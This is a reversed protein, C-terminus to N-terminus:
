ATVAVAFADVIKARLSTMSRVSGWAGFSDSEGSSAYDSWRDTIEDIDDLCNDFDWISLTVGNLKGWIPLRDEAHSESQSEENLTLRYGIEEAQLKTLKVTKM